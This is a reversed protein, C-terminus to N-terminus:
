FQGRQKTESSIWMLVVRNFDYINQYFKLKTSSYIKSSQEQTCQDVLRQKINSLLQEFLASRGFIFDSEVWWKKLFEQVM